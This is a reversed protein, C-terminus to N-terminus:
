RVTGSGEGGGERGWQARGVRATEEGASGSGIRPQTYTPCAAEQNESPPAPLQLPGTSASLPPWLLGSLRRDAPLPPPLRYLPVLCSFVLNAFFWFRGPTLSRVVPATVGGTSGFPRRSKYVLVLQSTSLASLTPRFLGPLTTLHSAVLRSLHCVPVLYSCWRVEM